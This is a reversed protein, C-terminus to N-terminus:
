PESNFEIEPCGFDQMKAGKVNLPREFYYTKWRRGNKENWFDKIEMGERRLRSIVKRADVTQAARNAQATTMRIGAEFMAKIKRKAENLNSM